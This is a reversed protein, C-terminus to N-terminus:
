IEPLRKISFNLSLSIKFVTIPTNQQKYIKGLKQFKRLINGQKIYVASPSPVAITVSSLM